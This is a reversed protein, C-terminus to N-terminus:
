PSNGRNSADKKTAEDEESLAYSSDAIPLNDRLLYDTTVGFIGALHLVLDLSPAKRGAELFSIHAQTISPLRQAVDWQTWGRQRRLAHLKAGLLRVQPEQTESTTPHAEPLTELEVPISDRLLYDTTTGFVEAVRLVLELSPAKRHSELYSIHSQSVLVLWRALDAQTLKHHRRLYRLKNGFQGAM